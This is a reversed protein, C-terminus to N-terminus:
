VKGSDKIGEIYKTALDILKPHNSSEVDELFSELDTLALSYDERLRFNILGRFFILVATNGNGSNIEETIFIELDNYKEVEIEGNFAKKYQELANDVDGKWAYLFGLNYRWMTDKTGGANELVKIAEDIEGRLFYIMSWATKSEYTSGEISEVAVVFEEVQLYSVRDRTEAFKYYVQNMLIKTVHLLRTNNRKYIESIVPNRDLEDQGKAELEKKVNLFLAYSLKYDRSVLAACGVVFKTAIGLTSSTFEFGDVEIDQDFSFRGPIAASIDEKLKSKVDSEIPIHRVLGRLKIVFSDNGSMKRESISGFFMVHAKSFKLLQSAKELGKISNSISEPYVVINFKEAIDVEELYSQISQILDNELRTKGKENETKVAIVVGIKGKENKPIKFKRYVDSFLKGFERADDANFEFSGDAPNVKAM